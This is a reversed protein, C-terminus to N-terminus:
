AGITRSQPSSSTRGTRTASACGAHASRSSTQAAWKGCTSQDRCKGCAQSRTCVSRGSRSGCTRPRCATRAPRIGHATCTTAAQPSVHACTRVHHASTRVCQLVGNNPRVSKQQPPLHAMVVALERRPGRVHCAVHPRISPLDTPTDNYLSYQVAHATSYVPARATCGWAATRAQVPVCGHRAGAQACLLRCQTPVAHNLGLTDPQHKPRAKQPRKATNGM